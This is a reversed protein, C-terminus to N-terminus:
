RSVRINSYMGSGPSGHYDCYVKHTGPQDFKITVSEGESLTENISASDLTVTHSGEKNM